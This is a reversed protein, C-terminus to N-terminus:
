GTGPRRWPQARRWAGCATRRGTPARVSPRRNVHRHVTCPTMNNMRIASSRGRRARRGVQRGRNGVLERRVVGGRTGRGKALQQRWLRPVVYSASMPQTHHRRRSWSSTSMSGEEGAGASSQLAERPPDHPWPRQALERRDISTPAMALPECTRYTYMLSTTTYVHQSEKKLEKPFSGIGGGCLGGRFRAFADTALGTACGRFSARGVACAGVAPLPAMCAVGGRGAFRRQAVAGLRGVLAAVGATEGLGLRWLCDLPNTRERLSPSVDM